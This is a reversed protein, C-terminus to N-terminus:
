DWVIGVGATLGSFPRSGTNQEGPSFCKETRGTQRRLRLALSDDCAGAAHSFYTKNKENDGGKLMPFIRKTKRM